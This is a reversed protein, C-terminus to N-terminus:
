KYAVPLILPKGNIHSFAGLFQVDDNRCVIQKATLIFESVYLTLQYASTALSWSELNTQDLAHYFSPTQAHSLKPHTQDPKYM